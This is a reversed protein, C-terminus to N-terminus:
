SGNAGAVHRRLFSPGAHAFDLAMARLPLGRAKVGFVAEATLVRPPVTPDDVNGFVSCRDLEVLELGALRETVPNIQLDGRRGLVRNADDEPSLGPVSAALGVTEDDTDLEQRGTGVAHVQKTEEGFQM